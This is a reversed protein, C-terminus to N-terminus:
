KLDNVLNDNVVLFDSLQQIRGGEHTCSQDADVNIIYMVDFFYYFAMILSLNIM